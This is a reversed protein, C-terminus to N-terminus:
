VTRTAPTHVGPAPEELGIRVGTNLARATRYAELQREGPISTTVNGAYNHFEIVVMGLAPDLRLTPNPLANKTETAKPVPAASAMAPAAAPQKLVPSVPRVVLDNLM